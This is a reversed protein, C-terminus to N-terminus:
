QAALRHVNDQEAQAEAVAIATMNVIGRASVSPTLIHAPQAVGILIPGVPLADAVVKAMQFAINASDLNPMVLVNAEGKLRSTPLVLDRTAQSLATDAQMEGDIELEPARACVLALAERMKRSSRDDHSGFDSHALLAIKPEIGFRRVHAASMVAMEAIQEASPNEHVHTDTM